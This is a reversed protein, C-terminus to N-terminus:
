IVRKNSSIIRGFNEARNLYNTIDVEKGRVVAVIVILCARLSEIVNNSPAIKKENILELGKTFIDHMNSIVEFGIKRSIGGNEKMVKIFSNMEYETYNYKPVKELFADLSKIPKLIKEEYSEFNFGAEKNLEELILAEKLEDARSRRPLNIETLKEEINSFEKAPKQERKTLDVQVTQESVSELIKKMKEPNVVDLLYSIEKVLNLSHEKFKDSIKLFDIKGSDIFNIIEGAKIGFKSLETIKKFRQIDKHLDESKSLYEKLLAVVEIKESSLRLQNASTVICQVIYQKTLDVM